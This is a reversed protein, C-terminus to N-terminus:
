KQQKENPSTIFLCLQPHKRTSYFFFFVIFSFRTWSSRRWMSILSEYREIAELYSWKVDDIRRVLIIFLQIQIVFYHPTVERSQWFIVKECRFKCKGNLSQACMCYEALLQFGFFFWMLHSYLLRISWDCHAPMLVFMLHLHCQISPVILNFKSQICNNVTSSCM